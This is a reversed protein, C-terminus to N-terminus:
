CFTGIIKEAVEAMKFDLDTIKNESHTSFRITVTKFKMMIDPHHDHKDAVQGLAYVFSLAMLYSPFEQIRILADDNRDWNPITKLKNFIDEQDPATEITPPM